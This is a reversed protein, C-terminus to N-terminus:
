SGAAKAARRWLQLVLWLCFCVTSWELSDDRLSITGKRSFLRKPAFTAVVLGDRELVFARRLASEPTLTLSEGAVSVDITRTFPSRKQAAALTEGDRELTWRGSGPGHKRVRLADGDVVLEGQETFWQFALRATSPGGTVAFSWSLFSSPEFHIM